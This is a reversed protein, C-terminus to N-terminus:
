LKVIYYFSVDRKDIFFSGKLARLNQKSKKRDNKKKKNKFTQSTMNVQNSMASHIFSNREKPKDVTIKFKKM